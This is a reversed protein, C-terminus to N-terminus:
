FIAMAEQQLAPKCSGVTLIRAVNQNDTFWCVRQNLLMSAFSELVNCVTRLKWWTSSQSAEQPFWHRQTIHCGYESLLPVIGSTRGM